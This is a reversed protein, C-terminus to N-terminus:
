RASEDHGWLATSRYHDTFGLAEWAPAQGRLRAGLNGPVDRVDAWMREALVALRPLLLFGADDLSTVTECWLAAEAAVVTAGADVVEPTAPAYANM